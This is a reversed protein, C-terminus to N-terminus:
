KQKFIQICSMSEEINRTRIKLFDNKDRVWSSQCDIKTIWMNEKM